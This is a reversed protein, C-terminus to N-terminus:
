KGRSLRAESIRQLGLANAWSGEPMAKYGYKEVASALGPLQAGGGWILFSGAMKRWPQVVKLALSFRDKLWPMLERIYADKFNIQTNGYLFSTDEIGKRILEIDGAKGGEFLGIERDQALATLLDICGGISLVERHETAGGPALVQVIVTGTGFDFAIVHKNPDVLQQARCQSYSGTGEPVVLSVKITVTSPTSNKGGFDVVHTGEIGKILDDKFLKSNHISAVLFLNWERRAPLTGIAGLIAHLAYTIKNHPDDSLKIHGHPDASYALEGTKWEQGVLDERTGSRYYFISGHKSTPTDLLEERVRKFKSPCRVRMQNLGSGLVLKLLGHGNDIGTAWAPAIRTLEAEIPQTTLM